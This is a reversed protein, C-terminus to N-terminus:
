ASTAPTNTVLNRQCRPCVEPPAPTLPLRADCTCRYGVLRAPTGVYLGYPVTARTVVAGAGIFCHEGLEVDSLVTVSAGLTAGRRAKWGLGALHRTTEPRPNPDNVFVVHPGVFVDDELEVPRYINAHNHIVVRSGIRVGRDVFAGHGIRCDEGIVAQALICVHSWIVTGRGIVSSPDVVATQHIVVGDARAGM